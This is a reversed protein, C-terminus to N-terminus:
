SIRRRVFVVGAGFLVIGLGVVPWWRGDIAIDSCASTDLQADQVSYSLPGIAWWPVVPLSVSWSRTQEPLVRHFLPNSSATGLQIGFMGRLVIAGNDYLIGRGDNTLSLSASEPAIQVFSVCSGHSAISGINVFVLTATGHVVSIEGPLTEAAVVALTFTQATASAPPRVTLAVSKSTGAAVPMSSESLSVWSAIDSSLSKLQPQDIGPQFTASFLSLSFVKDITETNAIPIDLTSSAGPEVVVDRTAPLSAALLVIPICFAALWACIVFFVRASWSANRM